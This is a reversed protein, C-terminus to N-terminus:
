FITNASGSLSAEVADAAASLTTNDIMGQDAVVVGICLLEAPLRDLAAGLAVTDAVGVGHSSLGGTACNVLDSQSLCLVSGPAAESLVADVLVVQDFAAMQDLLAVGPRDAKVYTIEPQPNKLLQDVVQWAATDVGWPSGVGIVAQRM